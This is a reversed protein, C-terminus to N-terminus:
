PTGDHGKAEQDKAAQDTASLDRTAINRSEDPNMYSPPHRRRRHRSFDNVTLVRNDNTTGVRSELAATSPRTLFRPFCRSPKGGM